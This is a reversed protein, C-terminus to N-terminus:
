SLGLGTGQGPPKTTFFPQFIKDVVKEPIGNGNDKVGIEVKEGIKRTSVSVTPEYGAGASKKKESVAHFANNYLNLLVRAIDQPIVNVLAVAPDYDTKQVANFLNDKARLGHYSLRLYEDALSNLDTPVKVGNSVRSHQLMGKVISDARKGHYNIKQENDDISDAITKAEQLNGDEMEQKMEGILESNVEAFNNMFNLPNQIEHAIGATLEGLSAMKESQILQAQTAKLNKLSQNLESTRVAVQKELTENQTALIRQKEQEQAITKQSLMEVESLKEKLSRNTFAFDLGLYISTAVPISLSAISYTLNVISFITTYGTDSYFIMGVFQVLSSALFTIAGGLLIWAGRKKMRVSNLAIRGIELSILWPLIFISIVIGWAYTYANLLIAIIILSTLFWFMRKRKKSFLFYIATLMFQQGIKELDLVLINYYFKHGVENTFYTVHSMIGCAGLFFAYLSFYLNAKQPPYFLYFALHLIALIFFVGVRFIGLLDRASQPPYYQQDSTEPTSIRIKLAPNGDGSFVSYSINPQLAYRIALVQDIGNEVSILVPKGWPDYAKMEGPNASLTGFHAISNGNL